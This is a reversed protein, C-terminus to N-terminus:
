TSALLYKTCALYKTSWDITINWLVTNKYNRSKWILKSNFWYLWSLRSENLPRRIKLINICTNIFNWYTKCLMYAYPNEVIFTWIIEHAYINTVGLELHAHNNLFSDINSWHQHMYRDLIRFVAFSPHDILERSSNVGQQLPALHKRKSKVRDFRNVHFLITENEGHKGIM